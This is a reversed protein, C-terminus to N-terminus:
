GQLLDLPNAMTMKEASGDATTTATKIPVVITQKTTAMM